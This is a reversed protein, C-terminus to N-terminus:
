RTFRGPKDDASSRSSYSVRVLEFQIDMEGVTNRINNPGVSASSTQLAEASIQLTLPTCRRRAHDICVEYFLEEDFAEMQAQEMVSHM